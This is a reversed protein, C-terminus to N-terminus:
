ISFIKRFKSQVTSTSGSGYRNLLDIMTNKAESFSVSRSKTAKNVLAINQTTQNVDSEIREIAIAANVVVSLRTNIRKTTVITNFLSRVSVTSSAGISSLLKDFESMAEILDLSNSLSLSAIFDLNERAQKADGETQANVAFINAIAVPSINSHQSSSLVISFTNRAEVTNSSGVAELIRVFAEVGDRLYVQGSTVYSMILDYNEEGQRSDGEADELIRLAEYRTMPRPDTNVPPHVIVPGDTYDDDYGGNGPTVVDDYKVCSLEDAPLMHNREYSKQVKKCERIADRCQPASFINQGLVTGQYQLEITCNAMASMSGLTFVSLLLAKKM